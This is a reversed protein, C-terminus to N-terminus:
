AVTQLPGIWRERLAHRVLTIVDDENVPKLLIRDADLGALKRWESAGGTATLVIIPMADATTSQRLRRTLEVGDLGPMQLDVLAVSPPKREFAQLASLGDPVCEIEAEPFEQSLVLKLGERSGEDDEAVLIREPEVRGRIAAAVHRHFTEVSPTRARPDKELAHLLARDLEEPLGPRVRSPPTVPRSAHQLLMGMLGAGDFPPHGTFLRYSVCALSYVDARSLLAPDRGKPFAIEPAMYAPTGVLESGEPQDGRCVTALGLDALRPRLEDDLLINSPKIDHHVTSQRHIAAVGSCVGDLIRLALHPDPPSAREALWQELTVGDIYEMVIYPAGDHEGFAHVQLVNPHSVRAMARAEDLFRGRSVPCVLHALIFKIAVRRDLTEDHALRVVGMAGMGIPREIRYTGGILSGPGPGDDRASPRARSQPYSSFADVDLMPIM